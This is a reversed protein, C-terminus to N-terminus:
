LPQQLLTSVSPRNKPDRQLCSLIIDGIPSPPLPNPLSIKQANNSLWAIIRISSVIGEKLLPPKSYVMQYLICGLSWVDAARGSKSTGNKTSQLTEPALYNLTGTINEREINTTNGHIAKAIGFDILKLSGKVLVFNQPKLDGHVIREQHIVYVAELIQQWYLRLYNMHNLLGDKYRSLIGALDIEGCELVINISKPTIEKDKLSIISPFSKLKELLKIEETYQNLLISDIDAIDVQKLAYISKDPSLVRYVKSSGGKGLLTLKLYPTKNVYLIDEAWNFPFKPSSPEVKVPNPNTVSLPSLTKSTSSLESSSQSTLESSSQDPTKVANEPFIIIPTQAKALHSSSESSSLIESPNEKLCTSLHINQNLECSPSICPDL